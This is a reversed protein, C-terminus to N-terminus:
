IEDKLFNNIKLPNILSKFDILYCQNSDRKQIIGNIFRGNIKISVHNNTQVNEFFEYKNNEVKGIIGGISKLNNIFKEVNINLYDQNLSNTSKIINLIFNKEVLERIELSNKYSNIKIKLNCLTIDKERFLNSWDGIKKNNIFIEDLTISLNCFTTKIIMKHMYYDDLLQGYVHVNIGNFSIIHIYQNSKGTVDYCVLKKILSKEDKIFQSFHPDGVASNGWSLHFTFPQVFSYIQNIENVCKVHFHVRYDKPTTEDAELVHIDESDIFFFM